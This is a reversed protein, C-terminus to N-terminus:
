ANDVIVGTREVDDGDIDVVTDYYGDSATGTDGTIAETIRLNLEMNGTLVVLAGRPTPTDKSISPVWRNSVAGVSQGMDYNLASMLVQYIIGALEDISTDAESTAENYGALATALQTPSASPDNLTSLDGVAAKSVTLEIRYTADHGVSGTNRGARKPFDGRTYFVQVQRLDDLVEDANISQRQFGVTQYRGAEAAGLIAVISAKVTEFQMTM